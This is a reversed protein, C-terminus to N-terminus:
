DKTFKNIVSGVDTILEYIHFLQRQHSTVHSTVNKKITDKENKVEELEQQLTRNNNELVMIREELKKTKEELVSIKDTAETMWFVFDIIFM